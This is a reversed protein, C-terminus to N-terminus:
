GTFDPWLASLDRGLLDSLGANRASLHHTLYAHTEPRIDDRARDQTLVRSKIFRDWRGYARHAIRNRLPAGDGFHRAYRHRVLPKGIHNLRRLTDLSKPYKTRNHWTDVDTVNMADVGLYSTVGDVAAQKDAKFDEFLVVHVRDRGLLNQFARLAPAYTSGMVISREVSLADELPITVRGSRLLHWYQSIARKVPNRLMFIMKIKKDAAAIRAPAVDSMLYTTTDEGLLSGDPADAFRSEYWARFEPNVPDRWSLKGQDVTLFDGHAIPDDADFFYIENRAMWIRPHQHLVQHLSTTGCKPAGGLIFDPFM